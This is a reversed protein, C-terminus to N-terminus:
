KGFFIADYPNVNPKPQQVPNNRFVPHHKPTRGSLVNLGMNAASQKKFAKSAEMFLSQSQEFAKQREEKRIQERWEDMQKQKQQHEQQKNFVGNIIRDYDIVPPQPQPPTPTPMRKVQQPQSQPQPQAVPQSVPQTQPPPNEVPPLNGEKELKKLRRAEASKARINKLHAEMKPTLTRKQDTKRYPKKKDEPKKLVLDNSQKFIESENPKEKPPPPMEVVEDEPIVEEAPNKLDVDMFLGPRQKQM